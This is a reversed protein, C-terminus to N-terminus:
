GGGGGGQKGGGGGGGLRWTGAAKVGEEQEGAPTSAEADVQNSLRDKDQTNLGVDSPLNFISPATQQHRYKIFHM